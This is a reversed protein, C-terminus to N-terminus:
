AVKNTCIHLPAPIVGWKKIDSQPSKIKDGASHDFPSSQKIRRTSCQLNWGGRQPVDVPCHVFISSSLTVSISCSPFPMLLNVIRHSLRPSPFATAICFHKQQPLTHLNLSGTTSFTLPFAAKGNCPNEVWGRLSGGSLLALVWVFLYVCGCFNYGLSSRTFPMLSVCIWELRFPLPIRIFVFRM